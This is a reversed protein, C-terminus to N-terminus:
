QGPVDDPVPLDPCVPWYPEDEGVYRQWEAWTLNRRVVECGLDFLRPLMPWLRITNDRSGSILIQGDPSFIASMVWDEHGLLVIPETQLDLMDWLRVSNDFSGSVLTQGDPLFVMRDAIIDLDELQMTTDSVEVPEMAQLPFCICFFIAVRAAAASKAILNSM